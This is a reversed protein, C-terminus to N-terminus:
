LGMVASGSGYLRMGLWFLLGAAVVMAGILWWVRGGTTQETRSREELESSQDRFESSQM